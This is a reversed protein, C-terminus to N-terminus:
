RGAATNAIWPLGFYSRWVHCGSSLKSSSGGLALGYGIRSGDARVVKIGIAMKGITAGYRGNMLAFYVVTMLLLLYRVSMVHAVIQQMADEYLLTMCVHVGILFGLPGGVISSDILYAAIRPWFGVDPMPQAWHMDAAAAAYPLGPQQGYGCAQQGYPYAQETVGYPQQAYASVPPSQGPRARVPPRGSLRSGLGKGRPWLPLRATRDDLEIVWVDAIGRSPSCDWQCWRGQPPEESPPRARVGRCWCRRRSAELCHRHAISSVRLGRGDRPMASVLRRGDDSLVM